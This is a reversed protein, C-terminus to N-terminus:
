EFCTIQHIYRARVWGITLNPMRAGPGDIRPVGWVLLWTRTEDCHQEHCAATNMSLSDYPQLRTIERFQAGPGERLSVFGDTTPLAIACYDETAQAAASSLMTAFLFLGARTM